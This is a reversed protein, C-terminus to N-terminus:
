TISSPIWWGDDQQLQIPTNNIILSEYNIYSLLFEIPISNSIFVVVSEHVMFNNLKPRTGIADVAVHSGGVVPLKFAPLLLTFLFSAKLTM